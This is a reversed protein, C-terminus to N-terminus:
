LEEKFLKEYIRHEPPVNKLRDNEEKQEQAKM